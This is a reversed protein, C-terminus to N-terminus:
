RLRRWRPRRVVPPAHRPRHGDHRPLQNLQEGISLSDDRQWALYEGTTLDGTFVPDIGAIEDVGVVTPDDAVDLHTDRAQVHESRIRKFEYWGSVPAVEKAPRTKPTEAWSLLDGALARAADEDLVVSVSEGRGTAKGGDESSHEASYVDLRLWPGPDDSGDDHHGPVCWSPISAVGVNAPQEYDGDVTPYHNSFGTAYSRVVGREPREPNEGLPIDYGITEWSSWISM